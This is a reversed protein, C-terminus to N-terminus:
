SAPLLLPETYVIQNRLLKFHLESSLTILFCLIKLNCVFAKLMRYQYWFQPIKQLASTKSNTKNHHQKSLLWKSPPPLVSIFCRVIFKTTLESTRKSGAKCSQDMFNCSQNWYEETLEYCDSSRTFFGFINNDSPMQQGKRTAM